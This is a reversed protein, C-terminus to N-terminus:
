LLITQEWRCMVLSLEQYAILLVITKTLYISLILPLRNFLQYIGNNDCPRPIQYTLCLMTFNRVEILFRFHRMALIELDFTNYNREPDRLQKSFFVLPKWHGNVFKELCAGTDSADSTIAIQDDSHTHSLLTSNSLVSIEDNYYLVTSAHIYRCKTYILSLLQDYVEQLSCINHPM